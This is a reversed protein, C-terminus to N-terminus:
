KQILRIIKDDTIDLNEQSDRNSTTIYISGDKGQIVERLRWYENKFWSEINEVVAGDKNLSFM